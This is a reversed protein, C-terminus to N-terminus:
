EIVINFDEEFLNKFNLFWYDREVSYVIIIIGKKADSIM